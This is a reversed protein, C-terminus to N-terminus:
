LNDKFQKLIKDNPSSFLAYINDANATSQAHVNIKGNDETLTIKIKGWVTFKKYNATIQNITENINLKTFGGNELATKCKQVVENLTGVIQFNEEKSKRIAM